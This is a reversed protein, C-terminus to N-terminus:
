NSLHEPITFELSNGKYDLQAPRSYDTPLSLTQYGSLRTEWYSLKESLSDGTLSAREWVAYDNYQIPLEPLEFDTDGSIYARYYSDLERAFVEMSWGDSAIHHMLIL